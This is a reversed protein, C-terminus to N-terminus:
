LSRHTVCPAEREREQSSTTKDQFYQHLPTSAQTYLLALKKGTKAIEHTNHIHM